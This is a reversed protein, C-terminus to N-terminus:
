NPFKKGSGKRPGPKGRRLVKGVLGELRNIFNEKGLPRDTREHQRLAQGEGEPLGSGLLAEWDGVMQLLPRVRVLRDNRGALHARASSWPYDEPTTVIRARVPNLEVYRAAALLYPEDM